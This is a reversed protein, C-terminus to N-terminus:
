KALVPSAEFVPLTSTDCFWAARSAWFINREPALDPSDDLTGAPVLFAEGSRTRWPLKSGCLTCFSNCFREADPHEWRGVLEEGQTWTFQEQKLLINAAHVSGSTKRCRSCHCYQFFLFPPTIAYAVRACACTGRLTQDTM